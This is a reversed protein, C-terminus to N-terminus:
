YSVTKMMVSLSEDPADRDTQAAIVSWHVLELCQQVLLCHNALVHWRLIGVDQLTTEHASHCRLDHHKNSTIFSVRLLVMSYLDLKLM